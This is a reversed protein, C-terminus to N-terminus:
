KRFPNLPEVLRRLTGPESMADPLLDPLDPKALVIFLIAAVVLVTTATVAAFRWVPYVNGAEFLRIIVLGTLIHITVLAGVFALKATFWAEFTERLFILGVGSGVAVFAAPSLVGVYLFRVLAQLRHLSPEDPVHTRQVYLGPLAILGAAWIAITALHLAKVWLM